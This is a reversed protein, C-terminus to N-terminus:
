TSSVGMAKRFASIERILQATLIANTDGGKGDFSDILDDDVIGKLHGYKYARATAKNALTRQTYQRQIEAEMAAHMSDSIMQMDRMHAAEDLEARARIEESDLGWGAPGMQKLYDRIREHVKRPDLQM